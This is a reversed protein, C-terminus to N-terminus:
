GSLFNIQFSGTLFDQLDGQLDWSGRTLKMTVSAEWESNKNVCFVSMNDNCIILRLLVLKWLVGKLSRTWGDAEESFCAGQSNTSRITNRSLRQLIRICGDKWNDLSILMKKKQSSLQIVFNLSLDRFYWAVSKPWPPQRHACHNVFPLIKFNPFPKWFAKLEEIDKTVPM